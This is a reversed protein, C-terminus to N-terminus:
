LAPVLGQQGELMRELELRIVPIGGITATEQQTFHSPRFLGQRIEIEDVPQLRVLM